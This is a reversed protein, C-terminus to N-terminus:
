SPVCSVYVTVSVGVRRIFKGETGSVADNDGPATVIKAASPNAFVFFSTPIPIHSPYSLETRVEAGM